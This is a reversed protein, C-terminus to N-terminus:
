LRDPEETWPIRWALISSHTAKGKELSDEWGLFRVWTEHMSPPNKVTQAVSILTPSYLLSLGSFSISEFQPTPSTEQSGGKSLLSILGTLGLPFWDQINMLLVSASASAGISQGGSAFLWSMPFSRSPPFSQPCPSFSTTSSSINPSCWHVLIQAFEPLCHPVPFGPISCDM